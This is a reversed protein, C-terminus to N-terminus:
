RAGSYQIQVSNASSKCQLNTSPRVLNIPPLGLAEIAPVNGVYWKPCLSFDHRCHEPPLNWGYTLGIKQETSMKSLTAAARTHATAPWPGSPWSSGAVRSGPLFLANDIAIPEANFGNTGNGWRANVAAMAVATSNDYASGYTALTAHFPAQQARRTHVPVGAAIISDEVADVWTGLTRQTADDVTAIFSVTRCIVEGFRVALKPFPHAAVVHRVTAMQTSNLCCLYQVSMHTDAVDDTRIGPYQKFMAVAEAVSSHFQKLGPSTNFLMPHITDWNAYGAPCSGCYGGSPCSFPTAPALAGRAASPTAPAPPAASAAAAAGRGGSLCLALALLPTAPRLMAWLRSRFRSPQLESDEARTM